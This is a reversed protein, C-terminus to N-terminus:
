FLQKWEFVPGDQCPLKIKGQPPRMACIGCEALGSCPFHGAILVQTPCQIPSLNSLHDLSDEVIELPIACALMDAWSIADVLDKLKNVEIRTPLNSFDGDTFLAVEAEQSLVEAALPLLHDSNEGFACLALRTTGPPIHFGRGLPGRLDLSDGPQWETPIGSATHIHDKPMSGTHIGGAFLTVSAPKERDRTRHASLFQGAAPQQIGELRILAQRSNKTRQQVEVIKGNGLKM